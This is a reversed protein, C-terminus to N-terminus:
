VNNLDLKLGVKETNAKLSVLKSLMLANFSAKDPIGTSCQAATATNDSLHVSFDLWLAKNQYLLM